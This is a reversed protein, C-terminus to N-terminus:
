ASPKLRQIKFMLRLDHGIKLAELLELQVRQQMTNLPPIAFMGFADAGLIVPAQYIVLEDILNQALLAGNLGQGAEVLVENIGRAALAQLLSKLCVKGHSDAIQLLEVNDAKLTSLKQTPDTAYALLTQGGQLILAEPSIRLQSDVVVRLPQRMTATANAAELRVTMRPNDALVTGTGTLIACSQARWHQVDLRAAEGTIWKSEGNALATRGDLSAAIKSRVLPLGRTMRSVFGANLAQAEAEMVGLTAAINYQKLLALGRGAVQPNPDQMAVIVRAAGTKILADACPPTRGHHSCPELTVYIDTGSLDHHGNTAAQRLAMVEAHPEGAKLHAGEAIVIGNKVIVCGVRPNPTTTYLGQTALRLAHAMYQHDNITM